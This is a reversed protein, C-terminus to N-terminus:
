PNENKSVRKLEREHYVYIKHVKRAHVIAGIVYNAVFGDQKCRMNDFLESMMEAVSM